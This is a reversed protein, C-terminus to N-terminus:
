VFYSIHSFKRFMKRRGIKDMFAAGLFNVLTGVIIYIVYMLLSKEADLGLTQYILVSYAAIGLIGASQTAFMLFLVLLSRKRWSPKTFMQIYGVKLDGVLENQKTIQIFEAKAALQEPDSPDHHIRQIVDWANENKGHLVYFRPSEPIWYIGM